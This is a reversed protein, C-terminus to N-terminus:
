RLPCTFYIVGKLHANALCENIAYGRHRQRCHQRTFLRLHNQHKGDGGEGVDVQGLQLEVARGTGDAVVARM